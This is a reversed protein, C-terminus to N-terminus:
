LLIPRFCPWRTIRQRKPWCIAEQTGQEMLHVEADFDWAWSRTEVIILRLAFCTGMADFLGIWKIMSLVQFNITPSQNNQQPIHM